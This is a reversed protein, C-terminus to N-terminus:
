NSYKKKLNEIEHSNAQQKWYCYRIGEEDPGYKDYLIQSFKNWNQTYSVFVDNIGTVYNSCDQKPFPKFKVRYWIGDHKHYLVDDMEFVTKEKDPRRWRRREVFELTKTEPHVYFQNWWSGTKIGREDCVNGDIIQCNQDVLHSIWQRLHYGSHSRYDAQQCIESFVEDWPRGIQSKLFRRMLSFDTGTYRDDDPNVVSHVKKMGKVNIPANGEEDFVLKKSRRPFKGHKGSSPELFKNPMDERM